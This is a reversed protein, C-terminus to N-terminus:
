QWFPHRTAQHYSWRRRSQSRGLRPIRHRSTTRCLSERYLSTQDPTGPVLSGALLLALLHLLVRLGAHQHRRYCFTRANHNPGLLAMNLPDDLLRLQWWHIGSSRVLHMSRVCILIPVLILRLLPSVWPLVISYLGCAEGYVSHPVISSLFALM